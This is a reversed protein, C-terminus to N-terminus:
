RIKLEIRQDREAWDCSDEHMTSGEEETITM